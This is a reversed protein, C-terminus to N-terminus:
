TSTSHVEENFITVPPPIMDNKKKKKRSFSAPVNQANMKVRWQILKKKKELSPIYNLLNELLLTHDHHRAIIAADDAYM